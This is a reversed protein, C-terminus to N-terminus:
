SALISRINAALEQPIVPKMILRVNELRVGKEHLFDAPYGSVFLAKVSPKIRVMEDFVATGSKRPMIIDLLVLDITEAERRFAEIADDPDGCALVSYGLAELLRKMISQVDADDEVLLIREKGGVMEPRASGSRQKRQEDPLMPFYLRFTTGQNPESYVTVTGDHQKVIGYVMALGLGTGRGVEKTTFFPEFIHELNEHSIGTGSDTVTIVAYDGPTDVGHMGADEIRIAGTAIFLVGGGPM